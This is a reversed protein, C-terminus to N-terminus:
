LTRLFDLVTRNFEDPREMNPLHATNPIVVQQAHPIHELMLKAAQHTTPVDVEGVIVLTPVQIESLRDVAPPDLAQENTSEAGNQLAIKNMERVRERIAPDVQDPTRHLGGVWLQVELDNMRDIDGAEDAAILEQIIPPLDGESEYPMGSPASCVPVLATAMNPHELAFDICASGGMSCGILHAQEIGLHQLLGHLDASFSFEGPVPQSQGFGRMDYRVVRYHEAFVGFQDDWMRSDAIGAHVFVLPSGDGAVEYYLRAGNIPAFGTESRATHMM